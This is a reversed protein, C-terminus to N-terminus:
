VCIGPVGNEAFGHDALHDNPKGQQFRKTSPREEAIPM